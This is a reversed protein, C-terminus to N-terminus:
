RTLTLVRKKTEPDKVEKTIRLRHRSRATKLTSKVYNVGLNRWTPAHRDVDEVIAQYTNHKIKEGVDKM